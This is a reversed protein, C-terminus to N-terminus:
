NLKAEVKAAVDASVWAKWIEPKTLLFEIAVEPALAQNDDAFVLMENAVSSEISRRALYAKVEAPVEPTTVSVTHPTPYPSAIYNDCTSEKDTMCKWNADGAFKAETPIIEMGLKAPLSSPEWWYGVINADEQIRKAWIAELAPGSGADVLEWGKAEMDFAKYLNRNVIHCNWQTPCTYFAGKSPDEPHPFLDPRALIKEFTDLEPYKTKFYDPVYFGEAGGNIVMNNVKELKGNELAEAFQAPILSMWAEAFIDPDGKAVMATATAEHGGPVIETEYGFGHNIIFEDVYALMSASMWNLESIKIKDAANAASTALVIAMAAVFSKFM